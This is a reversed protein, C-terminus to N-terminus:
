WRAHAFLFFFSGVGPGGDHLPLGGHDEEGVVVVVDAGVEDRVVALRPELRSADSHVLSEVHDGRRVVELLRFAKRKRRLVESAAVVHRPVLALRRPVVKGVEKGGKWGKRKGNEKEKKEEGTQGRREGRERGRQGRM